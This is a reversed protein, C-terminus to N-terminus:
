VRIKIINRMWIIGLLMLIAATYILKLGAPDEWLVELFKPNM